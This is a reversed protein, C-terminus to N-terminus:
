LPCLLSIICRFQVVADVGSTPFPFARALMLNPLWLVFYINVYNLYIFLYM